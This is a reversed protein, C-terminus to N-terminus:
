VLLHIICVLIGSFFGFMGKEIKKGEETKGKEKKKREIKLKLGHVQFHQPHPAIYVDGIRLDQLFM